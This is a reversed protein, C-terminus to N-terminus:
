SQAEQAEEAGEVASQEGSDDMAKKRGSRKTAPKASANREEERQKNRFQVLQEFTVPKGAEFGDKNTAM